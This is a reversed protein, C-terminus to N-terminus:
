YERHLERPVERVQYTSIHATVSAAKLIGAKPHTRKGRARTKSTYKELTALFEEAAKPAPVAGHLIESFPVMKGYLIRTEDRDQKIVSGSLDVGAFIGRARSYTLIETQM